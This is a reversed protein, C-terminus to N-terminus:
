ALFHHSARRRRVFLTYTITSSFFAKTMQKQQQAIVIWSGCFSCSADVRGGRGNRPADLTAHMAALYFVLRTDSMGDYMKPLIPFHAGYEDLPHVNLL